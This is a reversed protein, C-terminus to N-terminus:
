SGQFPDRLLLTEERGPGTSMLVVPIGLFGEIFKMYNQLEIPLDGLDRVQKPEYKTWGPMVEYAPEVRDLDEETRVRFGLRAAAAPHAPASKRLILSHHQREEWGRLYM